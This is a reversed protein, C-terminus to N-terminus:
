SLPSFLFKFSIVDYYVVWLYLQVGFFHNHYILAPIELINHFIVFGRIKIRLYFVKRGRKLDRSVRRKYYDVFSSFFFLFSSFPSFPLYGSIEFRVFSRKLRAFTTSLTCSEFVYSCGLFSWLM